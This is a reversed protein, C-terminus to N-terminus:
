EFDLNKPHAKVVFKFLVFDTDPVSYAGLDLIYGDEMLRYGTLTKYTKLSDKDYGPKNVLYTYLDSIRLCQFIM